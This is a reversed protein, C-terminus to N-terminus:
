KWSLIQLEHSQRRAYRLQVDRILKEMTPWKPSRNLTLAIVQRAPHEGVGSHIRAYGDLGKERAFDPVLTYGGHMRVMKHLLHLNGGEYSWSEEDSTLNCFHVMQTRLCNGQTLLWPHMKELDKSSIEAAKEEGTYAYIEEDFLVTSCLKPNAVPGALIGLDVERRDMAQLVEETKLERISLSVEPLLRQWEDFVDPVLYGAITPIVGVRINEKFMGSKKHVLVKIQEYENLVERIV